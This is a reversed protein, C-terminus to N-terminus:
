YHPPPAEQSSDKVQGDDAQLQELKKNMMQMAQRALDFQQTLDAMQSNLADVTEELFAVKMELEDIRQQGADRQDYADAPQPETQSM